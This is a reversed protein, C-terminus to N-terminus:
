QYMEKKLDLYKVFWQKTKIFEVETGCREHVNVPHTIKRQNKLLGQSKLDNIIKNRAEKISLGKYDGALSTMKGASDIAMKIELNHAKQWEMDTQDGFTCCMVVGSGKEMEVNKDALVSVEFDYLPIKAKKGILHKNKEDKPNVFVAVCASLLEPRTTSIIVDQKEEGEKNEESSIKFVIDNFYSGIDKDELEFQAITTQCKPCWLAPSEERYEREKNYLDIFSWQSIRRAREDITSYFLDFDASVGLNKVDDLFQPIYKKEITKQCLDIFEERKMDKSSLNKEKEVLKLTPLGNNDTGFPNLVEYGRMRKFRVFFDQQADGFAHGMHLRGSITPPPIDFSYIEKGSNSDFKFLKEREWFEKWRKEISHIDTKGKTM